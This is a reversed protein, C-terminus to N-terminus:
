NQQEKDKKKKKEAYSKSTNNKEIMFRHRRQLSRRKINEATQPFLDCLDLLEGKSICM